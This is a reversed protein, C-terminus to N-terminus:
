TLVKDLVRKLDGKSRLGTIRDVQEGGKFVMITPLGRVGLRAPTDVNEETDLKVFKVRGDYEDALEEVLPSVMKCPGCWEAWFDVMVPLDAQLVEQEFDADTVDQPKAM